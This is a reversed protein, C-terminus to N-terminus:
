MWYIFRMGFSTYDKLNNDTPYTAFSGVGRELFFDFGIMDDFLLNVGANLLPYLTKMDVDLAGVSTPTKTSDSAKVGVIMGGFVSVMENFGYQVGVPIDLYAYNFQLTGVSPIKYDFQRQNYMAGTRFRLNPILEFAVQLGGEFGLKGSVSGTAGTSELTATTQHFGLALGYEQAMATGSLLVAFVLSIIKLTM